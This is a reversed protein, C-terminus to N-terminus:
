HDRATPEMEEHLEETIARRFLQYAQRNFAALLESVERTPIDREVFNDTDFLFEGNPNMGYRITARAAERELIIICQSATVHEALLDDAQWGLILPSFRNSWGNPFQDPSFVNIYRLGARVFRDIAPYAVTLANLIHDFRESFDPFHQYSTTELSVFESSLGAIWKEDDSRFRWVPASVPLSEIGGVGVMVGATAEQYFHPLLPRVREQFEVPLEQTIRLLAPFRLQCVVTRLATRSYDFEPANLEAISMSTAAM